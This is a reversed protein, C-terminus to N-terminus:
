RSKRARISAQVVIASVHHAVTDHLERALQERERMQAEEIERPRLFELRVERPSGGEADRAQGSRSGLVAGAAAAGLFQRRAFRRAMM